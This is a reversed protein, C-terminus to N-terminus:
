LQSSDWRRPAMWVVLGGEERGRGGRGRVIGVAPWGGSSAPPRDWSPSSASNSPLPSAPSMCPAHRGIPGSDTEQAAPPAPPPPRLYHSTAPPVYLRCAPRTLRSSPLHHELPLSCLSVGHPSGKSRAEQGWGDHGRILASHLWSEELHGGCVPSGGPSFPVAELIPLRRCSARTVSVSSSTFNTAVGETQIRLTDTIHVSAWSFNAELAGGKISLIQELLM